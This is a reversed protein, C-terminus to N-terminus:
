PLSIMAQREKRDGEENGEHKRLASMEGAALVM